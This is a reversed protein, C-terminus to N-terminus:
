VGASSDLAEFYYSELGKIQARQEFKEAVAKAGQLALTTLNEPEDAALLLERALTNADAEPVLVGSVGHEIAEPIGGHITAFVPLGSAMAELMSNPVGEQNGDTGTESPHLFIHSRYLLERLETQSLFGTFTVRDAVGLERAVAQLQPLIPGEGAIAFRAAPYRQAFEAFARLSTLLGKKEILRCAQLFRWADDAPRERV